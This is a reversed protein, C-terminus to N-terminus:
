QKKDFFSDVFKHCDFSYYDERKGNILSIVTPPEPHLIWFMNKSTVVLSDRAPKTFNVEYEYLNGLSDIRSLTVKNIIKHKIQKLSVYFSTDTLRKAVVEQGLTCFALALLFVAILAMVKRNRIEKRM